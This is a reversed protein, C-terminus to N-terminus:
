RTQHRWWKFNGETCGMEQFIVTADKECSDFNCWSRFVWGEVMRLTSRRVGSVHTWKAPLFWHCDKLIPIRATLDHSATRWAPFTHTSWMHELHGSPIKPGSGYWDEKAHCGVGTIECALASVKSKLTEPVVLRSYNWGYIYTVVNDMVSLRNSVQYTHVYNQWSLM